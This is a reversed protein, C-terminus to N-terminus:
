LIIAFTQLCVMASKSDEGYNRLGEALHTTTGENVLKSIQRTNATEACRRWISNVGLRVEGKGMTYKAFLAM